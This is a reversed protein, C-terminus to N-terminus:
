IETETTIDSGPQAIHTPPSPIDVPPEAPGLLDVLMELAWLILTVKEEDLEKLREIFRTQLPEPAEHIFQTGIDTIEVHVQRRDKSIRNRKVLERKELRDVIGTVTSNNLFVIKTLAGISIPGHEYVERLCLLQPVTVKYNEQIYKSHRSMEQFIQRLRMMIQTSFQEPMTNNEV